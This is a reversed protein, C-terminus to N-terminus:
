DSGLGAARLARERDLYVDLRAGVGDRMTWVHAAPTELEMGDRSGGRYRTFVVVRDDSALFDEAECRWREWGSLWSRLAKNEEPRHYVGAIDPFDDSWSWVMGPGYLEPGASWDGVGWSEYIPRVLEINPHTPNM